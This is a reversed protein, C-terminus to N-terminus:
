DLKEIEALIHNKRNLLEDYMVTKLKDFLDDGSNLVSFVQLLRNEGLSIHLNTAKAITDIENNIEALDSCLRSARTINELKM